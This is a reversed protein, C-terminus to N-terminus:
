WAVQDALRRREPNVLKTYITTSDIRANAPRLVGARRSCATVIRWVHVTSM